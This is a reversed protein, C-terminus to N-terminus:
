FLSLAWMVADTIDTVDVTPLAPPAATEGPDAPDDNLPQAPCPPTNTEGPICAPPPTGDGLAAGTLVCILTFSLFLRRWHTM